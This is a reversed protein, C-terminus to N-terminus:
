DLPSLIDSTFTGKKVLNAVKGLSEFAKLDSLANLGLFINLFRANM